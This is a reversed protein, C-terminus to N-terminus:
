KASSIQANEIGPSWVHSRIQNYVGSILTKSDYLPTRFFYFFDIPALYLEPREFNLFGFFYPGFGTELGRSATPKQTGTTM